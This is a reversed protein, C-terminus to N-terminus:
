NCGTMEDDREDKNLLGSVPQAREESVDPCIFSTVSQLLGFSSM